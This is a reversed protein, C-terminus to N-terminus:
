LLVTEWGPTLFFLGCAAPPKHLCRANGYVDISGDPGTRWPGEPALSAAQECCPATCAVAARGFSPGAPLCWGFPRLESAALLTLNLKIGFCKHIKQEGPRM